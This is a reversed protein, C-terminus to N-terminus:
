VKMMMVYVVMIKFLWSYVWSEFFEEGCEDVVVFWELLIEVFFKGDVVEILFDLVVFGFFILFFNIFCGFLCFVILVVVGMLIKIKKEDIVVLVLVIM